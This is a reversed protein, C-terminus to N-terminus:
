IFPAMGSFLPHCATGIVEKMRIVYDPRRGEKWRPYGGLWVYMLLEQFVELSFLYDGIEITAGSRDVTVPVRSRHQYREIIQTVGTRTAYGDPNQSFANPDAPFPFQRYVDGIFGRLDIGHIAGMLSGIQGQDLVYVDWEDEM